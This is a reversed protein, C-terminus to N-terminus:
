IKYSIKVISNPDETVLVPLCNNKQVGTITNNNPHGHKDKAGASIICIRPFDYLNDNYEGESGHHPVQLVGIHNWYSNYFKKLVEYNYQGPSHIINPQFDGTYLCNVMNCKFIYPISNALVKIKRRPYCCSYVVLSYANHDEGWVKKYVERWHKMSSNKIIENIISLDVNEGSIAKSFAAEALLLDNLKDHAINLLIYQWNGRILHFKEPKEQEIQHVVMQKDNHQADERNLLVNFLHVLRAFLKKHFLYCHLLAEIIIDPTLVPVYINKVECTQLLQSIGNVHDDHFHSIFLADIKPKKVDAFANSIIATLKKIKIEGGCDYVINAVNQPNNYSDDYFRETYFAGHGVPHFTRVLKM